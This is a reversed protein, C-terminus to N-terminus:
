RRRSPQEDARPASPGSAAPERADAVYQTADGAMSKWAITEVPVDPTNPAGSATAAADPTPVASRKTATARRTKCRVRPSVVNPAM